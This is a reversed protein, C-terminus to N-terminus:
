YFTSNPYREDAGRKVLWLSVRGFLGNLEHDIREIIAIVADVVKKTEDVSIEYFVEERMFARGPEHKPTPHMLSDRHQREFQVVDAMPQYDTEQFVPHERRMAIRPYKLLKDRLKVPAFKREEGRAEDILDREGETLDSRTMLVDVAIGNLYGELLAFAARVTSRTLVSLRKPPIRGDDLLYEGGLEHARNAVVENWLLAMDEFLGAELLRWELRDRHTEPDGDQDIGIRTHPPFDSWGRFRWAGFDTFWGKELDGKTPFAIYPRKVPWNEVVQVVDDPSTILGVKRAVLELNEEYFKEARMLQKATLTPVSAVIGDLEVLERRGIHKSLILLARYQRLLRAVRKRRKSESLAM